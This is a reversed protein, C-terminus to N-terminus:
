THIGGVLLTGVVAIASPNHISLVKHTADVVPWNDYPDAQDLIFPVITYDSAGVGGWWGQWANAVNRPGFRIAKADAPTTLEVYVWRVRQLSLVAGTVDLEGSGGRLDVTITDTGGGLATLSFDRRYLTDAQGGGAGNSLSLLGTLPAEGFRLGTPLAGITINCGSGRGGGRNIRVDLGM